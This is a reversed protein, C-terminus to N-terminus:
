SGATARRPRDALASVLRELGFVFAPGIEEGLRFAGALEMSVFGHTFAVLNRAKVLAQDPDGLRACRDLIIEVADRYSESPLEGEGGETGFILGYLHRHRLAYRRQELAIARLDGAASGTIAVKRQLARLDALVGEAVGRLIAARDVFHKYLSPAQVGVAAAIAQMSVAAPGGKAILRRAAALIEPADTKPVSPM